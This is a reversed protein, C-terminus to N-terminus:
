NFVNVRHKDICSGISLRDSVNLRLQLAILHSIQHGCRKEINTLVIGNHFIVLSKKTNKWLKQSGETRDFKKFPSFKRTLKQHLKQPSLLYFCSSVKLPKKISLKQNLENSIPFNNM